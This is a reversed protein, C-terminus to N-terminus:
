LGKTPKIPSTNDHSQAALFATAMKEWEEKMVANIHDQVHRYTLLSLGITTYFVCNDFTNLNNVPKTYENLKETMWEHIKKKIVEPNKKQIEEQSFGQLRMADSIKQTNAQPSFQSDILAQLQPKTLPMSLNKLEENKKLDEYQPLADATSELSLAAMNDYSPLQDVIKQSERLMVTNIHVQINRFTGIAVGITLDFLVVTFTETAITKQYRNLKELMFSYIKTKIKEPDRKQIEEESFGQKRMAEALETTSANAGFQADIMAKVDQKTFQMIIEKLFLFVYM